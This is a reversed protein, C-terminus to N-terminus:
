TEFCEASTRVKYEEGLSIREYKLTSFSYYDCLCDGRKEDKKLQRRYVEYRDKVTGRSNTYREISHEGCDLKEFFTGRAGGPKGRGGRAARGGRGRNASSGRTSSM